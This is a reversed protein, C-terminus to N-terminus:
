HLIAFFLFLYFEYHKVLNVWDLDTGDYITLRVM